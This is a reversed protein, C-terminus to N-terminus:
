VIILYCIDNRICLHYRNNIKIVTIKNVERHHSMSVILEIKTMKM